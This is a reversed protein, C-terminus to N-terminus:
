HSDFTKQLIEDISENRRICVDISDLIDCHITIEIKKSNFDMDLTKMKSGTSKFKTTTITFIKSSEYIKILQKEYEPYASLDFFITLTAHSGLSLQVTADQCHFVNEDIKIQM